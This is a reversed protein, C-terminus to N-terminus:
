PVPNYRLEAKSKAYTERVSKEPDYNAATTTTSHGPHSVLSPLSVLPLIDRSIRVSERTAFYKPSALMQM